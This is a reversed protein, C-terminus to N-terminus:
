ITQTLRVHDYLQEYQYLVFTYIFSKFLNLLEKMRSLYYSFKEFGMRM